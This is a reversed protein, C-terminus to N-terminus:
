STMIGALFSMELENLTDIILLTSLAKSNFHSKSLFVTTPSFFIRVLYLSYPFLCYFFLFSYWSCSLDSKEAEAYAERSVESISGLFSLDYERLEMAYSVFVMECISDQITDSEQENNKRHVVQCYLHHGMQM